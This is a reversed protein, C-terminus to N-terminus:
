CFPFSWALLCLRDIFSPRVPSPLAQTLDEFRKGNVFLEYVIGSGRVTFCMRINATGLQFDVM